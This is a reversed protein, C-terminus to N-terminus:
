RGSLKTPIPQPQATSLRKLVIGDCNELTENVWRVNNLNKGEPIHLGYIYREGKYITGLRKAAGVNYICSIQPPGGTAPDTNSSIFRHLAYFYGRSNRGFDSTEVDTKHLSKYGAAGSGDVVILSSSSGVPIEDMSWGKIKSWKINFACFSYKKRRTLHLISFSPLSFKRPYRGFSNRILDFIMASREHPDMDDEFSSCSDIFTVIQSLQQSCFLAEGCYGM